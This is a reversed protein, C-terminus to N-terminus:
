GLSIPVGNLDDLLKKLKIKKLTYRIVDQFFHPSQFHHIGICNCCHNICVLKPQSSLVQFNTSQLSLAIKTSINGFFVALHRRSNSFWLIWMFVRLECFIVCNVCLFVCFECLEHSECFNCFNVYFCLIWLFDCFDRFECFNCFECFIVFRFIVCNVFFDCFQFIVFNVFIMFNVLIM